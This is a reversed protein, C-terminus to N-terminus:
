DIEEVQDCITFAISTLEEETVNVKKM